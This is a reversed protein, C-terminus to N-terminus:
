MRLLNDIKYYNVSFCTIDRPFSVNSYNNIKLNQNLKKYLGAVIFRVFASVRWKPLVAPYFNYQVLPSNFRLISIWYYNNIYYDTDHQTFLFYTLFYTPWYHAM